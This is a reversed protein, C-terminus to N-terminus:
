YQQVSTGSEKGHRRHDHCTADTASASPTCLLAASKTLSHRTIRWVSADTTRPYFNRPPASDSLELVDRHLFEPELTNYM